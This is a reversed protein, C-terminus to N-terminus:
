HSVITSDTIAGLIISASHSCELLTMRQFLLTQCKKLVVTTSNAAMTEYETRKPIKKPFMKGSFSHSGHTHLTPLRRHLRTQLGSLGFVMVEGGSQLYSQHCIHFVRVGM